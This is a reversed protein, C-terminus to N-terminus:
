DHTSVAQSGLYSVDMIKKYDTAEEVVVRGLDDESIAALVSKPGGIDMGMTLDRAYLNTATVLFSLVIVAAHLAYRRALVRIIRTQVPGIVTVLRKRFFRYVRYVATLCPRVM